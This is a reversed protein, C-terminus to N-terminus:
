RAVRCGGWPPLIFGARVRKTAGRRDPRSATALPLRASSRSGSVGASRVLPACVRAGSRARCSSRPRRIPRMTSAWPRCTAVATQTLAAPWRSVLALSTGRIASQRTSHPSPRLAASRSTRRSLARSRSRARAAPTVATWAALKLGACASLRPWQTLAGACPRSSRRPTMLACRRRMGPSPAAMPTRMSSLRVPAPTRMAPTASSLGAAAAPM